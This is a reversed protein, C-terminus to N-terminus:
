FIREIPKTETGAASAELDTESATEVVPMVLATGKTEMEFRIRPSDRETEASTPQERVASGMAHLSRLAAEM